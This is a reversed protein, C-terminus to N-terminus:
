TCFLIVVLENEVGSIIEMEPLVAYFGTALLDSSELIEALTIAELLSSNKQRMGLEEVFMIGIEWEEDPPLINNCGSIMSTTSTILVWVEYVGPEIDTLNYTGRSDTEGSNVLTFSGGERLDISTIFPDRGSTELYITGKLSAPMPIETETPTPTLTSTPTITPESTLTMTTTPAPTDTPSTINTLPSPITAELTVQGICASLSVLILALMIAFRSRKGNM